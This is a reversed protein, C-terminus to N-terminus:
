HATRLAAPRASTQRLGAARSYGTKRSPGSRALRALTEGDRGIAVLRPARVESAHRLNARPNHQEAATRRAKLHQEDMRATGEPRLLVRSGPRNRLPEDVFALVQEDRRLAFEELLRARRDGAFEEIEAGVLLWAALHDHGKRELARKIRRRQVAVGEREFPRGTGSSHRFEGFDVPGCPM